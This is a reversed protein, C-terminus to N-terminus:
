VAQDVLAIIDRARVPGPTVVRAYFGSMGWRPSSVDGAKCAKDWIERQITDGYVDLTSCPTRLKTLEIFVQGVRYRQGARMERRDIGKITLNEGLAGYHVPYGRAALEDIVESAILLLAKDIGGHIAPHAHLDGEIGLATVRGEPIPLKPVGGRSINVQVVSGIM